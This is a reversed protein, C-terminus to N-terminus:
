RMDRIKKRWLWMVMCYAVTGIAAGLSNTLIDDVECRGLCFFYQICEIMASFGAAFGFSVFAKRKWANPLAFPMALGLPFFLFVNMLMSRYYEQQEIAEYFSYFPILVVERSTNQRTLITAYLILIIEIIFGGRNIWKWFCNGKNSKTCLYGVITWFFIALIMSVLIISLPSRYIYARFHRM